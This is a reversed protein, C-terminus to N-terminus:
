ALGAEARSPPRASWAAVPEHEQHGQARLWHALRRAAVRLEPIATIEWLQGRQLPGLCYLGPVGIGHRDLVEGRESALIGLGLPDPAVLEAHRLQAILAHTTKVIDTDFGTARILVDYHDLSAHVQGRYRLYAQIEDQEVTAHLLQAADIRLRGSARLDDLKRAVQPALRHRHAEWYSRLHRMFRARQVAGLRKWLSQTHPRLADLLPRWDDAVRAMARLTRLLGRLDAHEIAQLLAAPQPTSQRQPSHALPPLGHRSIAHIVGRHGRLQLSTVVDAMTLGTGLVLVRADRGITELAGEAWPWGIYHPDHALRASLTPPRQPPLTGVALVVIDSFFDSGDVLYVRYGRPLREISIAAKPHLQLSAPTGDAVLHLRRHLYEGYVRRSLFQDRGSQDLQLWDAFDGPRDPDLGIDGSRVNLCHEPLAQGYAVGRGYSDRDGVLHVEVGPWADAVLQAALATGCFGAGVITIRM